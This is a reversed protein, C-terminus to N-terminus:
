APPRKMTTSNAALTDNLTSNDLLGTITAALEDDTWHYRDIRKGIGVDETRRANDHGDWCFPMVLSPM